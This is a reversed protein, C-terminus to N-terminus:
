SGNGASAAGELESRARAKMAETASPSELAQRLHADAKDPQDLLRKQLIGLNLHALANDPEMGILMELRKAADQYEGMNARAVASFYLATTDSPATALARDAFVKAKDWQGAALFHESLDRLPGPDDPNEVMAAMLRSIEPNNAMGGMGGEGGGNPPMGPAQRAAGHADVQASTDVVISPHDLRYLMAEALMAVLGLAVLGVALKAAPSMGRSEGASM